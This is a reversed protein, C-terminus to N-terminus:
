PSKSQKGKKRPWPFVRGPVGDANLSKDSLFVVDTPHHGYSPINGQDKIAAEATRSNLHLRWAEYYGDGYWGRLPEGWRDLCYQIVLPLDQDTLIHTTGYYGRGETSDFTHRVTHVQLKELRRQTEAVRKEHAICEEESTFTKGDESIYVNQKVIKM